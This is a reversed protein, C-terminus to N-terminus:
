KLAAQQKAFYALMAAYLEDSAQAKGLGQQGGATGGATWSYGYWGRWPGRENRMVIGSFSGRDLREVITAM